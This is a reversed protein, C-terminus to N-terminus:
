ALFVRSMTRFRRAWRNLENWDLFSKYTALIFYYFVIFINSARCDLMTTAKSVTEVRVIIYYLYYIPLSYSVLTASFIPVIWKLWSVHVVICVCM